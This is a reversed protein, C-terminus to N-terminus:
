SHIICTSQKVTIIKYVENLIRTVDGVYRDLLISLVDHDGYFELKNNARGSDLIM